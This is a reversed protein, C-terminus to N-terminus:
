VNFYEGVCELRINDYYYGSSCFCSYSSFHNSCVGNKCIEPGFMSCEDADSSFFCCHSIYIYIYILGRDFNHKLMNWIM